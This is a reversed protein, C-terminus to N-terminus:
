GRSGASARRSARSRDGFSWLKNGLFNLPTAAALAVAQCVVKSLPTLVVLLNLVGLSFAFATVSVVVFRGADFGLRGGGAGFTWHRNWWFSNVLAVVFATAAATRYHAGLEHLCLAFVALNLCYSSGGVVLFRLLQFWNAPRRLGTWIRVSLSLQVAYTEETM